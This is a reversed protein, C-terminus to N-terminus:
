SANTNGIFAQAEDSNGFINPAVRRILASRLKMHIFVGTTYRPEGQDAIAALASLGSAGQILDDYAAKDAYPGGEGFGRMGCYIIAPNARAVDDYTLKLRQM